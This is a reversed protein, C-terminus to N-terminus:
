TMMALTRPFAPYAKLIQTIATKRQTRCGAGTVLIKLYNTKPKPNGPAKATM